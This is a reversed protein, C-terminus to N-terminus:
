KVFNWKIFKCAAINNWLEKKVLGDEAVFPFPKQPSINEENGYEGCKFGGKFEMVKNGSSDLLYFVPRGILDKFKEKEESQMFIAKGTIKITSYNKGLGEAIKIIKYDIAEVRPLDDSKKEVSQIGAVAINSSGQVVAAGVNSKDNVKIASFILANETNIMRANIEIYNQVPILTGTLLADVNLIKGIKKTTASDTLGTLSLKQEELLKNVKSREVVKIEKHQALHTIIREALIKGNEVTQGNIDTFEIVAISSNNLKDLNQIVMQAILYATDKESDNVTKQRVTCQIFFILLYTFFLIKIYKM